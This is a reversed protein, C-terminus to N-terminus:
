IVNVKIDSPFSSEASRQQEEDSSWEFIASPQNLIPASSTQKGMGMSRTILKKAFTRDSASRAVAVNTTIVSLFYADDASNEVHNTKTIATSSKWNGLFGANSNINGLIM